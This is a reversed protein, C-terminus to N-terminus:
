RGPAAASKTPGTTRLWQATSFLRCQHEVKGEAVVFATDAFIVRGGIKNCEPVHRVVEDCPAPLSRSRIFRFTAAHSSSKRALRTGAHRRVRCPRCPVVGCVIRALVFRAEIFALFSGTGGGVDRGVVGALFRRIGDAAM